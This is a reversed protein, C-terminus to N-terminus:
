KAQRGATCHWMNSGAEWGMSTKCLKLLFVSQPPCNGMILKMKNHIYIYAKTLKLYSKAKNVALNGVHLGTGLMHYMHLWSKSHISFSDENEGM